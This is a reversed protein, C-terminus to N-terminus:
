SEHDQADAISIFQSRGAGLGDQIHGGWGRSRRPVLRLLRTGADILDDAGPLFQRPQFLGGWNRRYWLICVTLGLVPAVSSALAAGIIGLRPVLLFDLALMAVLSSGFTRALLWPYGRAAASRALLWQGGWPIGGAILILTPAVAPAYAPGFVLPVVLPVSLSLAAAFAVLGLVALRCSRGVLALAEEDGLQAIRPFTALTLSNPVMVVLSGLTLAISYHGAAAPGALRSAALPYDRGSRCGLADTPVGSAELAAHLPGRERMTMLRADVGSRRPLPLSVEWYRSPAATEILLVLKMKPGCRSPVGGVDQVGAELLASM